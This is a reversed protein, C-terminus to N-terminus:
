VQIGTLPDYTVQVAAIQDTPLVEIWQDFVEYPTAPRFGGDLPDFGHEFVTETALTSTLDTNTAQLGEALLELVQGVSLNGYAPPDGPQLPADGVVDPGVHM